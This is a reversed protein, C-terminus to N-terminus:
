FRASVYPRWKRTSRTWQGPTRYHVADVDKADSEPALRMGDDTATEGAERQKRIEALAEAKTRGDKMSKEWWSVSEIARSAKGNRLLISRVCRASKFPRRKAPREQARRSDVFQRKTQVALIRYAIRGGAGLWKPSGQDVAQSLVDRSHHERDHVQNFTYGRCPFYLSEVVVRPESLGHRSCLRDRLTCVHARIPCIIDPM